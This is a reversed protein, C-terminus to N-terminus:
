QQAGLFSGRYQTVAAQYAASADEVSNHYGLYRTKGDARITAVWRRKMVVRNM